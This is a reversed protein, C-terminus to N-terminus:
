RSKVRVKRGRVAILGSRQARTSAMRLECSPIRGDLQVLDTFDVEDAIAVMPDADGAGIPQGMDFGIDSLDRGCHIQREVVKFAVLPDDLDLARVEQSGCLEVPNARFVIDGQGLWAAIRDQQAMDLHMVVQAIQVHIARAIALM